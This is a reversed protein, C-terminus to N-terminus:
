DQFCHSLNLASSLTSVFLIPSSPPDRHGLVQLCIFDTNYQLLERLLNVRRYEWFLSFLCHPTIM